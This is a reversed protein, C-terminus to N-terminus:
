AIKVELDALITRLREVEAILASVDNTANGIFQAAEPTGTSEMHAIYATIHGKLDVAVIYPRSRSTPEHIAWSGEKEAGELRAKIPELNLM